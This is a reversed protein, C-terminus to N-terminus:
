NSTNRTQLLFPARDLRSSISTTTQAIPTAMDQAQGIRVIEQLIALTAVFTVFLALLTIEASLVTMNGTVLKVVIKVLSAKMM